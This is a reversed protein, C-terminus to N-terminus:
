PVPVPEDTRLEGFTFMDPTVAGVLWDCFTTDTDAFVRASLDLCARCGDLPFPTGTILYNQAIM